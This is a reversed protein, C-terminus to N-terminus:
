FNFISLTAKSRKSGVETSIGYRLADLGHNYKDIPKNTYEGTTKDKIWTYNKLEEIIETCKPHVIIEYQQILQIGNIISDRGKVAGKVRSLGNRKLEEISKPEASDCVIVEKRYGLDIIKEAIEDNLLGKEQFEDFIWLKKNIKDIISCVFATPDNTYGFDLSFIAKTNRNNKLIEKYDFSEEKWNTYILKDLTAFEGLAYIRFYVPNDKELNLLSDIYDKPLFKNNKYTTHLVITDKTDYGNKFWRKYVWNSKSVPNFMVHIQNYPNKSRLRLNLQDFDFEDIETCEEVVIDDIGAISKIKEPDDIGKFIFLSKNPLEITLDTKNIKCEDYIQWDSLVSRFLAFISEKLTSNVKRVVLCKRGPYKLYKYIMKQVVFHSKGSGGGGYFVNFRKEYNQLQPLYVENFVRKNIKIRAM